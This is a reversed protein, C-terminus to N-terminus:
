ATIYRGSCDLGKLAKSRRVSLDRLKTKSANKGLERRLKALVREVREYARFQLRHVLHSLHLLPQEAINRSQAERGDRKGLQAPLEPQGCLRQLRRDVRLPRGGGHGLKTWPASPATSYGMM